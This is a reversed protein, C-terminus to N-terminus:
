RWSVPGEFAPAPMSGMATPAEVPAEGVPTGAPQRGIVHVLHKRGFRERFAEVFAALEADTIPTITITVRHETADAPAPTQGATSDSM